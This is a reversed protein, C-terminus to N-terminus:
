RPLIVWTIDIRLAPDVVRALMAAVEARTIPQDPLFSGTEDFGQVIGRRYLTLIDPQYATYDDVDTIYQRTAYGEAVVAANRADFWSPELVNALIHAVQARAASMGCLGEFEDAIVGETRLYEAYGAYWPADEPLEVAAAGAEADGLAYTSRIRAAFTLLEAITVSDDAGFTGDDRGKAFGYEYLAAISEYQGNGPMLDSFAGEYLLTRAFVPVNQGDEDPIEAEQADEPQESLQADEPSQTDAPADANEMSDPMQASEAEQPPEAPVADEAAYAPLITLALCLFLTLIKKKM